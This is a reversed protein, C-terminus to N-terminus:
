YEVRKVSIVRDFTHRSPDVGRRLRDNINQFKVM